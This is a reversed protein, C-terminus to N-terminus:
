LRVTVTAAIRIGSVTHACRDYHTAIRRWDKPRGLVNRIRHRRHSIARDCPLAVKRSRTSPICPM